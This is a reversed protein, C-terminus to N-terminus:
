RRKGGTLASLLMLVALGGVIAATYTIIPDDFLNTTNNTTQTTTDDANGNGILNNSLDVTMPAVAIYTPTNLTLTENAYYSFYEIGTLISQWGGNTSTYYFYLELAPVSFIIESSTNKLIDGVAFTLNLSTIKFGTFVNDHIDVMLANMIGGSNDNRNLKILMAFDDAFANFYPNQESNAFAVRIYAIKSTDTITILTRNNITKQCAPYSISAIQVPPVYTDWSRFSEANSDEAIWYTPEKDENYCIVEFSRDNNTVFDTYGLIDIYGSTYSSKGSVTHVEYAYGMSYGMDTVWNPTVVQGYATKDTCNPDYLNVFGNSTAANVPLTNDIPLFAYIVLAVTCIILIIKRM